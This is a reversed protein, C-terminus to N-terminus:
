KGLRSGREQISSEAGEGQHRQVEVVSGNIGHRRGRHPEIDHRDRKEIQAGRDERGIHPRLVVRMAGVEADVALIACEDGHFGGIEDVLRRVVKPRTPM